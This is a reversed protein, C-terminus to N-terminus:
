ISRNVSREGFVQIQFAKKKKGLGYLEDWLCCFLCKFAEAPLDANNGRLVCCKDLTIPDQM